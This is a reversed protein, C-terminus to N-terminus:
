GVWIESGQLIRRARTATKRIINGTGAHWRPDPSCAQLYRAQQIARSRVEALSAVGRNLANLPTRAAFDAETKLATNPSRPDDMHDMHLLPYYWGNSWGQLALRICWRTFSEEDGLPGNDDFCARKMIYGSGGTWANRMLQHGGNLAVVKKRATNQDHDEPRFPWASVVGLAPNHQHAHRFCDIWGVPVLCDDDVKGLLQGDAHQWFWNTPEHLKRNEASVHVCHLRPHQQFSRVIEVTSEDDGNHWIWIRSNDDTEDLLRQLAQRTYGPRNYTIMLVDLQATM